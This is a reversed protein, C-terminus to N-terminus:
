IHCKQKLNTPKTFVPLLNKLGSTSVLVCMKKLRDHQNGFHIEKKRKILALTLFKAFNHLNQLNQNAM